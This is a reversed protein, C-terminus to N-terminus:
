NELWGEIRLNTTTSTTTDGPDEFFDEVYTVSTRTNLYVDGPSVEVDTGELTVPQQSGNDAAVLMGVVTVENDAYFAGNTYVMGFFNASGLRDYGM